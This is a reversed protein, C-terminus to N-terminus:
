KKLVLEKIKGNSDYVVEEVTAPKSKTDKLYDLYKAITTPEDYDPSAGDNYIMILVPAEANSFMTMAENINSNAAATSSSSAISSMYKYLREEKSPIKEPVRPVVEPIEEVEETISEVVEPEVEEVPSSIQSLNKRSKCSSAAVLLTIIFLFSTASGILRSQKM